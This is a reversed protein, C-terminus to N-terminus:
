ALLQAACGNGSTDWRSRTGTWGAWCCWGSTILPYQCAVCRATVCCTTLSTLTLATESTPLRQHIGACVDPMCPMLHFGKSGLTSICLLPFTMIGVNSSSGALLLLM